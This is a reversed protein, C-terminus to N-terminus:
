PVLLGLTTRQHRCATPPLRLGLLWAAYQLRLRACSALVIVVLSLVPRAGSVATAGVTDGVPVRCCIVSVTGVIRAMMDPCCCSFVRSRAGAFKPM